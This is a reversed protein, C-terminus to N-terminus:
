APVAAIAKQVTRLMEGMTGKRLYQNAGQHLMDQIALQDHEMATYLLVPVQAHREKFLKMLSLGSEGALNVDLIILDPRATLAQKLAEAANKATSVEYGADQLYVTAM